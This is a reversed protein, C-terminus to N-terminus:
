TASAGVDLHTVKDAVSDRATLILIPMQRGAARLKRLIDSGTVHPLMIDLIVVDYNYTFSLELGRAGSSATDVAFGEAKLAKAIVTLLKEEDEVLLARM